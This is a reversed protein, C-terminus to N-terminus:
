SSNLRTSKRDAEATRFRREGSENRDSLAGGPPCQALVLPACDELLSRTVDGDPQLVQRRDRPPQVMAPVEGLRLREIEQRPELVRGLVLAGEFVKKRLQAGGRFPIIDLSLHVDPNNSLPRGRSRSRPM